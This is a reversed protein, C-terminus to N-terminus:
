REVYQERYRDVAFGCSVVAGSLFGLLFRAGTPRRRLIAREVVRPGASFVFRLWILAARDAWECM